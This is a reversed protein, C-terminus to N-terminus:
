YKDGDIFYGIDSLINNLAGIIRSEAKLEATTYSLAVALRMTPEDLTAPDFPWVQVISISKDAYHYSRVTEANTQMSHWTSLSIGVTKQPNDALMTRQDLFSDGVMAHNTVDLERVYMDCLRPSSVLRRVDDFDSLKEKINTPRADLFEALAGDNVMFFHNANM